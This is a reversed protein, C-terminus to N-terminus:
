ERVHPLVDAQSSRFHMWIFRVPMSKLERRLYEHYSIIISLFLIDLMIGDQQNVSSHLNLYFKRLSPFLFRILLTRRKHSAFTYRKKVPIDYKGHIIL